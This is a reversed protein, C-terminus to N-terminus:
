PGSEDTSSEATSNFPLIERIFSQTSGPAEVCEVTEVRVIVIAGLMGDFDTPDDDKMRAGCTSLSRILDPAGGDTLWGRWHLLHEGDLLKFNIQVFHIPGSSFEIKGTGVGVVVAEFLGNLHELQEFQEDSGTISQIM